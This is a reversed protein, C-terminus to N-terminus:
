LSSIDKLRGDQGFYDTTKFVRRETKDGIDVGKWLDVRRGQNIAKEEWRVLQETKELKNSIDKIQPAIVQTLLHELRDIQEFTNKFEAAVPILGDATPEIVNSVQSQIDQLDDKYGVNATTYSSLKDSYFADHSQAPHSRLFAALEDAVEPPLQSINFAPPRHDEMIDIYSYYLSPTPSSFRGSPPM